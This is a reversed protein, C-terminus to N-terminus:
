PCTVVLHFSRRVANGVADWTQVWVGNAVGSRRATTATGPSATGVDTTGLTANFVCARVNVPFRVEYANSTTSVAFSSSASGRVKTGSSDVVVSWVRAFGGPFAAPAAQASLGSEEGNPGAHALLPPAVLLAAFLALSLPHRLVSM